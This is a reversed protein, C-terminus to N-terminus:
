EDATNELKDIINRLANVIFHLEDDQVTFMDLFVQGQQVRPIISPQSLRLQKALEDVHLNQLYLAVVSTPLSVTALSGGGVEASSRQVDVLGNREVIKALMRKLKNARNRIKTESQTLMQMVRHQKLLKAEDFFLQLTAELAAFTLKGCRLTRAVQNAKIRAIFEKKGVIIGSQPGGILKDGSFSVIDAGADISERVLPEKVLGYRSLDVLSGSGLDHLVPLQYQVGLEVLQELPVDEHFGMIRYNSTHVKLLLGTYENIAQAYDRINTKNTTGVEVMLAGSERMIDPIRFSGGITVLEGRSVVCQKGQSLTNLILFTAAANNNVVAAAEAGTLQILMEEVITHRDGRAGSEIEYEVLAFGGAVQQLADQAASSLPARGLGTHLVVGTANICRSARPRLQLDLATVLRKLTTPYELLEPSSEFRSENQLIENRLSQLESRLVNVVRARPYQTLFLQISQDQLLRDIKPIKSLIHQYSM